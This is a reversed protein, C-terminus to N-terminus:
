ASPVLRWLAKASLRGMQPLPCLGPTVIPSSVSADVRACSRACEYGRVSSVSKMGYEILVRDLTWTLLYSYVLM